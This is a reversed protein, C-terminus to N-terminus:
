RLYLENINFKKDKLSKTYHCQTEIEIWHPVDCSFAENVANLFRFLYGNGM